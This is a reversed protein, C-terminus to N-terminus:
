PAPWIRPSLRGAPGSTGSAVTVVIDSPEALGARLLPALALIVATAYCGPSAVRDAAAIRERAGPLEPLGYPWSGAYPGGYTREWVDADALRFDPGLDVIRVAPPLEAAVRASEGRPLALFVVNAEALRSAETPEFLRGALDTLAPHVDTVAKGAQTGACLAGLELQPHARILRLLEGGAYGSAGAIAATVGM